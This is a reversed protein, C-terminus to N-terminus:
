KKPAIGNVIIPKIREIWADASIQEDNILITYFYSGGIIDILHDINIDRDIEGREIGKEIIEILVKRRPIIFQEKYVEMLAPNEIMGSVIKKLTHPSSIAADNAVDVMGHLVTTFDILFNGTDPIEIEDAITGIAESILEEKSKWHRYITMKGVSAAKAVGEISLGHVGENRLIERTAALIAEHSKKSRPRGPSKKTYDSIKM